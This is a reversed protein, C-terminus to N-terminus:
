LRDGLLPKGPKKEATLHIGPSRHEAGQTVKIDGKDNASQHLVQSLHSALFGSFLRHCRWVLKFNKQSFGMAGHAVQCLFDRYYSELNRKGM